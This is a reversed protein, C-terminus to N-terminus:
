HTKIFHYKERGYLGRITKNEKQWGPMSEMIECIRRWDAREPNGYRGLGDRWIEKITVTKREYLPVKYKDNSYNSREKAPTNYDDLFQRRDIENLSAWNEPIRKELFEEIDARLPDTEKFIGQVSEVLHREDSTLHLPEGRKYITLAESWIQDRNQALEIHVRDEIKRDNPKKSYCQVPWNRREGTNDRLFESENTTGWFVCRRPIDVHEHAFLGRTTDFSQSIFQKFTEKDAKKFATLESVEVIFKGKLIRKSDENNFAPISTLVWNLNPSLNAIFSSKGVGQGGTLIVMNDYKCGPELARAVHAVIHKRTVLRTYDTDEAGLYYILLNEVRKVGDWAPLGEFYEKISDIEHRHAITDIADIVDAKKPAFGYQKEIYFRLENTDQDTWKHRTSSWPLDSLAEKCALFANYCIGQFEPMAGLLLVVNKYQAGITDNKTYSLQGAISAYAEERDPDGEFFQAKLKRENEQNWEETVRPDDQCLSEMAIYSPYRHIPTDPKVNADRDGFLNVRVFDFANLSRCSAPSTANYTHITLTDNHIEVGNPETGQTWTYRGNDGPTYLDGCFTELAEQPSYVRCFAGIFGPKQRPDTLIGNGANTKAAPLPERTEQKARPFLRGERQIIHVHQGPKQVPWYMLQTVKFGTRDIEWDPPLLAAVNECTAAYIAAFQKENNNKLIPEELPLVVRLRPKDETSNFTTHAIYTYGDLAAKLANLAGQTTTGEPLSDIDLAVLSRSLIDGKKRGGNTAGGIYGGRANKFESEIIRSVINRLGDWDLQKTQGKSSCSEGAKDFKTIITM